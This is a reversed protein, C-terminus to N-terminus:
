YMLRLLVLPVTFSARIMLFRGDILRAGFYDELLGRLASRVIEENAIGADTELSTLKIDLAEFRKNIGKCIDKIGRNFDERIEKMHKEFVSM